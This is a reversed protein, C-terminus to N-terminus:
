IKSSSRFDLNSVSPGNHEVATSNAFAEQANFNAKNFFLTSLPVKCGNCDLAQTASREYGGTWFNILWPNKRFIDTYPKNLPGRRLHLPTIIRRAQVSHCLSIVISVLLYKRIM